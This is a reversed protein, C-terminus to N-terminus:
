GLLRAHVGVTRNLEFRFRELVGKVSKGPVNPLEHEYVLSVKADHSGHVVIDTASTQPDALAGTPCFALTLALLIRKV